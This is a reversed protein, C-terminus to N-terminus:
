AQYDDYPLEYAKEDKYGPIYVLLEKPSILNFSLLIGILGASLISIFLRVKGPTM